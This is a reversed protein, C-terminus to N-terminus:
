QQLKLIRSIKTRDDILRQKLEELSAFRQEHRTLAVFHTRMECGYIDADFDFINVEISRRMSNSVTPRNGINCM